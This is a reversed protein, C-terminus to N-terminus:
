KKINKFQSFDACYLKLNLTKLYYYFTHEISSDGFAVDQGALKQIKEKVDFFKAAIDFIRSICFFGENKICTKKSSENFFGSFYHLSLDDCQLNNFKINNISSIKNVNIAIVYHFEQRNDIEFKRKKLSTLLLNEWDSFGLTGYFYNINKHLFFKAKCIELCENILSDNINEGYLVIAINSDLSLTGPSKRNFM